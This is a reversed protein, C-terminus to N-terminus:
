SLSPTPMARANSTAKRRSRFRFSFDIISVLLFWGDIGTTEEVIMVIPLASFLGDIEFTSFSSLTAEL